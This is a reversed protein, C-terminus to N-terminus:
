DLLNVITKGDSKDKIKLIVNNNAPDLFKSGRPYDSFDFLDKYLDQTEIEYVLSDTDTLLLKPSVVKKIIRGYVCNNMLKLFDKGMEFSM